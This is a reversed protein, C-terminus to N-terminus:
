KLFYATKKLSKLYNERAKADRLSCCQERYVLTYPIHGKTYRVKGANHTQLREFIDQTYGIYYTEDRTSQLIYVFYM